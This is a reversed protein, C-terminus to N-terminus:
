VLAVYTSPFLGMQGQENRGEFWSEHTAEIVLTEGDKFGLEEDETADFDFTAKCLKLNADLEVHNAPFLGEQGKCRGKMWGPCDPVEGDYLTVIVLDGEAFNIETEDVAEYDFLARAVPPQNAAGDKKRPTKTKSGATDKRRPSAPPSANSAVAAAAGAGASDTSKSPSKKESEEDESESRDTPKPSKPTAPESTTPASSADGDVPPAVLPPPAEEAAKQDKTKKTKKDKEKEKSEKSEKAEKSEKSEKSKLSENPKMSKSRTRVLDPANARAGNEVPDAPVDVSHETVYPEYEALAEPNLGTKKAELLTQLDNESNVAEIATRLPIVDENMSRAYHDQTDLFQVMVKKIEERRKMELEGFQQLIGRFQEEYKQQFTRHEAIQQKYADHAQDASTKDATVRAKLKDLEKPKTGVPDAARQDLTSKEYDACAKVYKAKAKSLAEKSKTM